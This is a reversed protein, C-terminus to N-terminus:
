AKGRLTFLGGELIAEEESFTGQGQIVTNGMIMTTGVLVLSIGKPDGEVHANEGVHVCETLRVRGKVVAKGGVVVQDRLVSEEGVTAEGEVIAHGFVMAEEILKAKGRLTAHGSLLADGEVRGNEYACADDFLWCTGEQSLNAESEVYGGVEGKEVSHRVDRLAQIRYLKRGERIITDDLLLQYKKNAQMM